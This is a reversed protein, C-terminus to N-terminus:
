IMDTLVKRHERPGRSQISSSWPNKAWRSIKRTRLNKGSIKERWSPDGATTVGGEGKEQQAFVGDQRLSRRPKRYQRTTMRSKETKKSNKKVWERKQTIRQLNEMGKRAGNSVINRRELRKKKQASSHEGGKAASSEMRVDKIKEEREREKREVRKKKKKKQVKWEIAKVRIPLPPSWEGIRSDGIM